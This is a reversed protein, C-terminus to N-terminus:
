CFLPSVFPAFWRCLNCQSSNTLPVLRSASGLLTFVTHDFTGQLDDVWRHSVGDITRGEEEQNEDVREVANNGACDRIEKDLLDRLPRVICVGDWTKDDILAVDTAVREGRGKATDSVAIAALRTASEGTMVVSAGISQAERVLARMMVIREADAHAECSLASAKRLLEREDDLPVIVKFNIGLETATAQADALPLVTDRTIVFAAEIIQIVRKHPQKTEAFSARILKTMTRSAIGGSLAAIARVIEHTRPPLAKAMSTKVKRECYEVFCKHCVQGEKERSKIMEQDSSGGCKACTTSKTEM